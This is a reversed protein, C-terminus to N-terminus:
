ANPPPTPPSRGTFQYPAGALIGDASSRMYPTTLCSVIVGAFHAGSHCCHDCDSDQWDRNQVPEDGDDALSSQWGDIIASVDTFVDIKAWADDIDTATELGVGINSIILITLIFQRM